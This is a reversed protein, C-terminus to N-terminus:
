ESEAKINKAGRAEKAKKKIKSAVRWPMWKGKLDLLINKIAEKLIMNFKDSSVWWDQESFIKTHPDLFQQKLSIEYLDFQYFFGRDEAKM